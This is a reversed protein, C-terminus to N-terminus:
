QLGIWVAGSGLVLALTTVILLLVIGQTDIWPAPDPEDNTRMVLDRLDAGAVGHHRPPRRHNPSTPQM